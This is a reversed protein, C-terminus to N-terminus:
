KSEFREKLTRYYNEISKDGENDMFLCHPLSDTAKHKNVCSCCRGHNVCNVKPCPCNDMNICKM